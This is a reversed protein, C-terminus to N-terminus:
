GSKREGQGGFNGDAMEAGGVGGWATGNTSLGREAGGRGRGVELAGRNVWKAGWRSFEFIAERHGGEAQSATFGETSVTKAPKRFCCKPVGSGGKVVGVHGPVTFLAPFALNGVPKEGDAFVRNFGGTKVWGARPLSNAEGAEPPAGGM